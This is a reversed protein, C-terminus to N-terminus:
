TDDPEEPEHSRCWDVVRAILYDIPTEVDRSSEGESELEKGCKAIEGLAWRIKELEQPSFQPAATLHEEIIDLYRYHDGGKWNGGGNRNMEDEVGNMAELLEDYPTDNLAFKDYLATTRREFGAIYDESSTNANGQPKEKRM